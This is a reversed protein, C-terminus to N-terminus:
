FTDMEYYHDFIIGFALPKGKSVTPDPFTQDLNVLFHAKLWVMKCEVREPM